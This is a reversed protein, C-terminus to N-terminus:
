AVKDADRIPQRIRRERAAIPHAAREERNREDRRTVIYRPRRKVEEYIKAVYQGIIGLAIMLVSSAFLILLILTTFGEVADGSLKRYITQAGLVAAVALFLFGAVTVFHLPVTSFSVISDVALRYLKSLSWKSRGLARGPVDFFVDVQRFGLWHVLGRFFLNREPLNRYVDAVRRDLLKFDSSGALRTGALREFVRYYLHAAARKLKSEDPRRRKVANVVEYGDDRWRAFMDPILSPPHQLDGDMILVAEGEATDIGALMAAEKGFNRALSVAVTEPWRAVAERARQWTDDTSGDDVIVLEYHIGLTALTDRIASVSPMLHEAEGFVPIVVSLVPPRDITM